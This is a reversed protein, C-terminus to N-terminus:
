AKLRVLKDLEEDIRRRAKVGLEKLEGYKQRIEVARSDGSLYAEAIEAFRLAAKHNGVTYGDIQLDLEWETGPYNENVFRKAYQELTMQSAWLKGLWIGVLYNPGSLIRFMVQGTGPRAQTLKLKERATLVAKDYTGTLTLALSSVRSYLAKAQNFIQAIDAPVLRILYPKEVDLNSWTVVTFTPTAPDLWSIAEKRLPTYVQEVLENPSYDAKKGIQVSASDGQINIINEAQVNSQEVHFFKGRSVYNITLKLYLRLQPTGLIPAVTLALGFLTSVFDFAAVGRVTIAVGVVIVVLIVLWEGWDLERRKRSNSKSLSEAVTDM